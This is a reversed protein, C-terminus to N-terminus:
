PGELVVCDLGFYFRAGEAAPNAGTVEFRLVYKGNVPLFVGLEVPPAPTVDPSYGDFTKEIRRGNVSIAYIGYDRAQTSYLVLKRASLDKAQFEIEAYDGIRKAAGMLQVGGSWEGDFAAMDQPGISFDSSATVKMTECEIAGPLNKPARAAIADALTPVPLAAAALQPRRNSTTGPVAYWCTTAAYTLSSRRWPLLEM